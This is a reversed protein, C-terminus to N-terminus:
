DLVAPGIDNCYTTAHCKRNVPSVSSLLLYSLIWMQHVCSSIYVYIINTTWVDLVHCLLHNGTLRFSASILSRCCLMILFVHCSISQTIRSMFSCTSFCLYWTRYKWNSILVQFAHDAHLAPLGNISEPLMLETTFIVLFALRHSHLLIM